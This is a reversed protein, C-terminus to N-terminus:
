VKRSFNAINIQPVYTSVIISQAILHHISVISPPCNDSVFPRISALDLAPHWTCLTDLFKPRTTWDCLPTEMIVEQEAKSALAIGGYTGLSKSSSLQRFLISTALVAPYFRDRDTVDPDDQPARM